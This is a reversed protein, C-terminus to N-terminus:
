RNVLAQLAAMIATRNNTPDTLAPIVTPPLGIPAAGGKLADISRVFRSAQAPAKLSPILGFGQRLSASPGINQKVSGLVGELAADLEPGNKQPLSALFGEPTKSELNKGAPQAGKVLRKTADAGERLSQIQRANSAHTDVAGRFSPMVDGSADVLARKAAGIDINELNTGAKFDDTSVVRNRLVGQRDSMLRYAERLVKADDAGKLSRSERVIDVFPKIDTSTLASRLALPSQPIPMDVLGLDANSQPVRMLGDGPAAKPPIGPGPGTRMEPVSAEAARRDLAERAQQQAVTGESRSVVAASRSRLADLAERVTPHPAPATTMQSANAVMADRTANHAEAARTTEANAAIAEQRASELTRANNANAAEANGQAENLRTFYDTGERAANGYNQKDAATMANRRAIAADGLSRGTVARLGTQATELVKGAAGGIAAGAVTRLARNGIGSDPDNNLAEDAGGMVAGQGAPTALVRALKPAAKVIGTGALKTLGGTEALAGVGRGLASFYPVDSTERNVDRQIDAFPQDPNTLKRAGSMLLRGGSTGALPTELAEGIAKGAAQPTSLIDAQDQDNANAVDRGLKGSAFDKHRQEAQFQAYLSDGSANPATDRQYQEYLSIGM